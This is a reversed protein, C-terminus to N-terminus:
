ENKREKAEEVKDAYYERLQKDFYKKLENFSFDNFIDVQRFCDEYKLTELWQEYTLFVVNGEDVTVKKYDLSWSKLEKFLLYKGEIELIDFKDCDVKPQTRRALTDKLQENEDILDIIENLLKKQKLNM